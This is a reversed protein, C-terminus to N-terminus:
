EAEVFPSTWLTSHAVTVARSANVGSVLSPTGSARLM